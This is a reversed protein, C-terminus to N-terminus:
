IFTMNMLNAKKKIELFSLEMQLKEKNYAVLPIHYFSIKERNLIVTSHPNQENENNKDSM